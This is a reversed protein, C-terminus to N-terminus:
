GAIMATLRETLEAIGVREQETTDRKRITVARDLQRPWAVSHQEGALAVLPGHTHSSAGLWPVFSRFGLGRDFIPQGRRALPM